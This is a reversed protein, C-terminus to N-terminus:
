PPPSVSAHAPLSVVGHFPPPLLPCSLSRLFLRWGFVLVGSGGPVASAVIVRSAAVAAEVSSIASARAREDRYVALSLATALACAVLGCAARVLSFCSHILLLRFSAM